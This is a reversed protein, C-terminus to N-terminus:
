FGRLLNFFAPTGKPARRGRPRVAKGRQETFSFPFDPFGKSFPLNRGDGETLPVVCGSSLVKEGRPSLQQRRDWNIPSSATTSCCKGAGPSVASSFAVILTALILSM